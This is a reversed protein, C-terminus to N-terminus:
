QWKSHFIRILVEVEIIKSLAWWLIRTFIKMVGRIRNVFLQNFTRKRATPFFEKVVRFFVAVKYSMSADLCIGAIIRKTGSFEFSKICSSNV